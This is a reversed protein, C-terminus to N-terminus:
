VGAAPTRRAPRGRGDQKQGVPIGVGLSVVNGSESQAPKKRRELMQRTARANLEALFADRPVVWEKGEKVAPYVGEALLERFKIPGCRLLAEGEGEELVPSV